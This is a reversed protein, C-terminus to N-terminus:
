PIREVRYGAAGLKAVLGEAGLLHLSGVVVLTDRRHENDLMARLKPLWADNRDTDMRRYLAPYKQRFELALEGYMGKDDGARWLGHLRDLQKPDADDQLSEALTDAQEQPSMSDFLRVQDDSSELGLTTKGATAAKDMLSHDLGIVLAVFWPEVTQFQALGLGHVQCYTQLEQWIPAPLKQQLSQGAPLMAASMMKGALEPSNLEAPPVEFAVREADAFAADVSAALPYDSPKLAHFSGLLYLHNDGDSIKWLLPRPPEAQACAAFLLLLMTQWALHARPRSM